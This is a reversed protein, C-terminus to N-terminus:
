SDKKQPLFIHNPLPHMQFTQQLSFKRRKVLTPEVQQALIFQQSQKCVSRPAEYITNKYAGEGKSKGKESIYVRHHPNLIWAVMGEYFPTLHIVVNFKSPFQHLNEVGVWSNFQLQHGYQGHHGPFKWLTM